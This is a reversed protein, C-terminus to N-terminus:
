KHHKAQNCHKYNYCAQDAIEEVKCLFNGQILLVAYTTIHQFYVLFARFAM